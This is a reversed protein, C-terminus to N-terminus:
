VNLFKRLSFMSGVVGLVIGYVLFYLTIQMMVVAPPAITSGLPLVTLSAQITGFLFYYLNRIILISIVAGGLGLSSGEIIFPFRIYWDTAGVYKMISIDSRRSFVTLKITNYIIFVAILSLISFVVWSLTTTFHNFKLLKEVTQKGYVADRVGDLGKAYVYVSDIQDPNDLKVIYSDPLPSNDNTYGDLLYSYNDLSQKFKDLAQAKSEYEVTQVNDFALLSNYIDTRQFDTIDSQLYVRLELNDEIQSIVYNINIVVLMIVGVIVLASVVSLVSALSMVSNRKINHFADRFFLKLSSM